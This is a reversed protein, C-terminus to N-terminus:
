SYPLTPLDFFPFPFFSVPRRRSAPNCVSARLRKPVRAAPVSRSGYEAQTLTSALSSRVNPRHRHNPSQIQALLFSNHPFIDRADVTPWPGQSPARKNYDAIHSVHRLCTHYLAPFLSIMKLRDCELYHSRSLIPEVSSVAGRLFIVGSGWM